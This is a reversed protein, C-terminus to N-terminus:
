SGTGATPRSTSTTPGASRSRTARHARHGPRDRGAPEVASAEVYLTRLDWSPTVHQSLDGTHLVRVIKRTRQDIVTTVPAGYANPVYLYAPDGAARPALQGVGAHAYVQGPVASPMGPLPDRFPAPVVRPAGTVRSRAPGDPSAASSTAPRAPGAPTEKHASCAALGAVVVCGVLLRVPRARSRM